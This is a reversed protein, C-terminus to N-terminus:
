LDWVHIFAYDTTSKLGWSGFNSNRPGFVVTIHLIARLILPLLSVSHSFPLPSIWVQWKWSLIFCWTFMKATRCLLWCKEVRGIIRMTHKKEDLLFKFQIVLCSHSRPASSVTTDFVRCTESAIFCIYFLFFIFIVLRCCPSERETILVEKFINQKVWFEEPKNRLSQVINDVDCPGEVHYSKSSHQWCWLPGGRPLYDFKSCHLFM